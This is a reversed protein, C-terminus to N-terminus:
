KGTEGTREAIWQDLKPKYIYCWKTKTGNMVCDGFPFVGQQIGMRIVEPSIRLGMGRLYETAAAATMADIM